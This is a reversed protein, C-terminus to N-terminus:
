NREGIVRGTKWRPSHYMHDRVHLFKGLAATSDTVIFCAADTPLSMMVMTLAKLEAVQFSHPPATAQLGGMITITGGCCLCEFVCMADSTKSKRNKENGSAITTDQLYANHIRNNSFFHSGTGAFAYTASLVRVQAPFGLANRICRRLWEAV